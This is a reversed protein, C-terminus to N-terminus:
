YGAFLEVCIYDHCGVGLFQFKPSLINKRHEPSAMLAEHTDDASQYGKSLNEGAVMCRHCTMVLDWAENEGTSPDRHSFYGETVLSRARRMARIALCEDWKLNGNEYRALEYLRWAKEASEFSRKEPYRYPSPPSSPEAGAARPTLVACAFIMGLLMSVLKM